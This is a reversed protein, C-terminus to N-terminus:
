TRYRTMACVFADGGSAHADCRHTETLQTAALPKDSRIKVGTDKGILLVQFADAPVSYHRRLSSASVSAGSVQDGVVEIMMLDRAAFAKHDRAIIVRQATLPSAQPNPAFVVLLRKHWAFQDLAAASTDAAAASEVGVGGLMGCLCACLVVRGLTKGFFFDNNM